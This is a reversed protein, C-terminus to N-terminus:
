NKALFKNWATVAARHTDDKDVKYALIEPNNRRNPAFLQKLLQDTLARTSRDDARLLKVLHSKAFASRRTRSGQKDQTSLEPDSKVAAGNAIANKARERVKFNKPADAMFVVLDKARVRGRTKELQKSTYNEYEIIKPLDADKKSEALLAEIQKDLKALRENMERLSGPLKDDAAAPSVLLLALLLGTLCAHFVPRRM